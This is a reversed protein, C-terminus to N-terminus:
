DNIIKSFEVVDLCNAGVLFGNLNDLKKFQKAVESNVSGGYIVKISKGAESSYLKSIVKRIVEISSNVDKIDAIKGTGLAWIPEYVFIINKLENEYIGSLAESIQEELALATKNSNKQARTDGVCVFLNFNYRLGTKIKKNVISYTEGYRKRDNHGVIVNKVNLDTLMSASIEGTFSGYEEENMNQAGFSFKKGDYLKSIYLSTFPLFLVVNTENEGLLSDLKKVYENTESFTKNMKFNAVVIEKM